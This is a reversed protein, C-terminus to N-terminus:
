SEHEAKFDTYSVVPVECRIGYRIDEMIFDWDYCGILWEGDFQHASPGEETPHLHPLDRHLWQLKSGSRIILVSCTPYTM